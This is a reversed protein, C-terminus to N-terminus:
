PKIETALWFTIQAPALCLTGGQAALESSNAARVDGVDVALLRAKQWYDASLQPLLHACDAASVEELQVRVAPLNRGWDKNFRGLTFSQGMPPGYRWRDPLVGQELAKATDDPKSEPLSVLRWARVARSQISPLDALLWDTRGLRDSLKVAQMALLGLCIAVVPLLIWLFARRKMGFGYCLRATEAIVQAMIFIAMQAM